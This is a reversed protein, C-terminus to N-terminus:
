LSSSYQATFIFLLPVWIEIRHNSEGLWLIELTVRRANGVPLTDQTVPILYIM